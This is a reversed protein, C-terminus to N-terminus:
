LCLAAILLGICDESPLPRDLLQVRVAAYVAGALLWALRRHAFQRMVWGHVLVLAAFPVVEKALHAAVSPNTLDHRMFLVVLVAFCVVITWRHGCPKCTTQMTKTGEDEDCCGRYESDPLFFRGYKRATTCSM